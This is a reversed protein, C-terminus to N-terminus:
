FLNDLIEGIFDTILYAVVMAVAIVGAVIGFNEM